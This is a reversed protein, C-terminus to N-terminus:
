AENRLALGYATIFEPGIKYNNTFKVTKIITPIRFEKEFIRDIKPLYAGPGSLFIKSIPLKESEASRPKALICVVSDVIKRISDMFKETELNLKSIEEYSLMQSGINNKDLIDNLGLNRLDDLAILQGKDWLAVFTNSHDICISITLANQLPYSLRVRGNAVAAPEIAIPTINLLRSLKIIEQVNEISAAAAMVEFGINKHEVTLQTDIYYDDENLKKLKAFASSAVAKIENKSVIPISVHGVDLIKDPFSISFSTASIQSPEAKLRAETIHNAIGAINKLKGQRIIPDSFPLEIAGVLAVGNAEFSAEVLRLCNETIELGFRKVSKKLINIPM